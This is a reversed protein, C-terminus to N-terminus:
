FLLLFLDSGFLLFSSYIQCKGSDNLFFRVLIKGGSIRSQRSLRFENVVPGRSDKIGNLDPRLTSM